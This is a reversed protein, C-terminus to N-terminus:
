IIKPIGKGINSSYMFLITYIDLVSDSIDYSVCKDKRGWRRMDGVM